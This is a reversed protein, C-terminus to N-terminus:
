RWLDDPRAGARQTLEEGASSAPEWLIRRPLNVYEWLVAGWENLHLGEPRVGFYIVAVGVLIPFVWNSLFRAPVGQGALFFLLVLSGGIFYGLRRPIPINLVPVTIMAQICLQPVEHEEEM